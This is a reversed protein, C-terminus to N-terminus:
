ATTAIALRASETADRKEEERERKGGVGAIATVTSENIQRDDETLNFKECKRLPGERNLYVCM